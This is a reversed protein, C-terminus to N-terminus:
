FVIISVLLLKIGLGNLKSKLWAIDDDSGLEPNCTYNTVAYPSGIVDAVQVDPLVQEYSQWLNPDTQDHHLGYAGLHWVGM